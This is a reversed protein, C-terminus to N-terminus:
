NGTAPTNTNLPTVSANQSMGLVKKRANENNPNLKMAEQYCDKATEFESKAFYCNGMVYYGDSLLNKDAKEKTLMTKANEISEDYRGVLSYIMALGYYAKSQNQNYKVANSFANAAEALNVKKGKGAGYMFGLQTYYDAILEDINESRYYKWEGNDNVVKSEYAYTMEKNDNSYDVVTLTHDLEVVNEYVKGDINENTSEIYKNLKFDQIGYIQSYLDQMLLYKETGWQSKTADALTEYAALFNGEKSNEYYSQLVEQPDGTPVCGAVTLMAITMIFFLLYARLNKKSM